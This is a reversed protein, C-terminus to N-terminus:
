PTVHVTLEWIGWHCVRCFVRQRGNLWGPDDRVLLAGGCEPCDSPVPRENLMLQRGDVVRDVVAALRESLRVTRVVM